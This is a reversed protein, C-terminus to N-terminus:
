NRIGTDCSIDARTIRGAPAEIEIEQCQPFLSGSQASLTSRGPALALEFRGDDGTRVTAVM